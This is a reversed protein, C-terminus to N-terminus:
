IVAPTVYHQFDDWQLAFEGSNGYQDTVEIKVANLSNKWGLPKLGSVPVKILYGIFAVNSGSSSNAPINNVEIRYKNDDDQFYIVGDLVLFNDGTFNKADFFIMASSELTIDTTDGVPTQYGAVSCSESIKDSPLCSFSLEDKIGGWSQTDTNVAENIVPLYNITINKFTNNLQTSSAVEVICEYCLGNYKSEYSNGSIVSFRLNEKIKVPESSGLFINNRDSYNIPQLTKISVKGDMSSSNNKATSYYEYEASSNILQVKVAVDKSLGGQNATVYLPFVMRGSRITPQTNYENVKDTYAWIKGESIDEGTNYDILNIYPLIDEATITVDNSKKDQANITILITAQNLGNGYIETGGISSGVTTISLTSLSTVRSWPSLSPQLEVLAYGAVADPEDQTIKIFVLEPRTMANPAQYDCAWIHMKGESPLKRPASLTGSLPYLTWNEADFHRNQTSFGATNGETVKLTYPPTAPFGLEIDEGWLCIIARSKEGSPLSAIVSVLNPEDTDYEGVAPPTYIGNADISGANSIDADLTWTVKQETSGVQYATFQIPSAATEKVLIFAPEVDLASVLVTAIAISKLGDSTTATIIINKTQTIEGTAPSTYLGNGDISGVGDVSWTIGEPTSGDSLTASFQLTQGCAIVSEDPTVTLATLSQAVDGYLALDGPNYVESFSLINDGPFLVNLLYFTKISNLTWLNDQNLNEKAERAFVTTASEGVTMWKWNLEDTSLDFDSNGVFVVNNHSDLQLRATYKGSRTFDVHKVTTTINGNFNNKDTFIDKFVPQSFEGVISNVDDGKKLRFDAMSLRASRENKEEDSSWVVGGNRIGVYVYKAKVVNTTPVYGDTFNLFYKGDAESTQWKFDSIRNNFSDALLSGYLLKDSILLTATKGDPIVWPHSDNDAPLTGKGGYETKIFVLVAGNTNCASALANSGPYKQTRVVFEVPYLKEQTDDHKLEGMAYSVTTNKLLNQFALTVDAPLGNLGEIEYIQGETFDLTIKGEDSVKGSGYKLEITINLGYQSAPTYREWQVVNGNSDTHIFSGDIFMMRVTVKSDQITSNEFSILPEGLVLNKFSYGGGSTDTEHSFPEYHEGVKVKEIYQQRLLANVRERNYVVMADWGLTASQSSLVNNVSEVTSM